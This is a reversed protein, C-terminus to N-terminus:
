QFELSQLLRAPFVAWEQVASHACLEWAWHAKWPPRFSVPFGTYFHFHSGNPNGVNVAARFVLSGTPSRVCLPAGTVAGAQLNSAPALLGTCYFVVSIFDPVKGEPPILSLSLFFLFEGAIGEEQKWCVCYPWAPLVSAQRPAAAWRWPVGWAEGGGWLGWGALLLLFHESNRVGETSKGRRTGGSFLVPVPSPDQSASFGPCHPYALRPSM